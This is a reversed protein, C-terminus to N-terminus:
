SASGVVKRGDESLSILMEGDGSRKAMGIDVLNTLLRLFVDTPLKSREHLEALSMPGERLLEALRLPSPDGSAAPPNTQMTKLFTGFSNVNSM